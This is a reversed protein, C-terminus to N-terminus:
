NGYRNCNSFKHARNRSPTNPHAYVLDETQTFTKVLAGLAVEFLERKEYMALDMCITDLPAPSMVDFDFGEAEKGHFLALFCEAMDPVLEWGGDTDGLPAVRVDEGFDMVSSRTQVRSPAPRVVANPGKEEVLARFTYLLRSLQYDLRVDGFTTLVDVMCEKSRLVLYAQANM